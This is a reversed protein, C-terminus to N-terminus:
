TRDHLGIHHNTSLVTIRHSVVKAAADTRRKMSVTSKFSSRKSPQRGAAGGMAGMGGGGMEEDEAEGAGAGVGGAVDAGGPKGEAEEGDGDLSSQYSVNSSMLFHPYPVAGAGVGAGGPSGGNLGGGPADGRKSLVRNLDLLPRKLASVVAGLPTDPDGGQAPRSLGGETPEDDDSVAAAAIVVM